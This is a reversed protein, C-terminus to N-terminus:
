SHLEVGAQSELHQAWAISPSLYRESFLLLFCDEVAENFKASPPVGIGHLNMFTRMANNM